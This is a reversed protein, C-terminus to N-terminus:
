VAANGRETGLCLLKENSSPEGGHQTLAEPESEATAGMGRRLRDCSTAVPNQFPDEAIIYVGAVEGRGRWLPERIPLYRKRAGQKCM